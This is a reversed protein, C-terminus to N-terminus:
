GSAPLCCGWSLQLWPLVWDVWWYDLVLGIVPKALWVWWFDLALEPVGPGQLRVKPGPKAWWHALM